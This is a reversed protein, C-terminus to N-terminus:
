KCNPCLGNLTFNVEKITYNQPLSFTPVVTDLCTVRKCNECSFHIHNHSHNEHVHNCSAYKTTGELNVIKHILDDKILRELVRYITVRDCIGNSLNQIEIHSLAVNSHTILDFIVKKATTNRTTKM